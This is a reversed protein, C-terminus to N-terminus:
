FGTSFGPGFFDQSLIDKEDDTLPFRQLDPDYQTPGFPIECYDAREPSEGLFNLSQDINQFLLSETVYTFAAEEPAAAGIDSRLSPWIHATSSAPHPFMPHQSSVDDSTNLYSSPTSPLFPAASEYSPCFSTSTSTKHAKKSSKAKVRGAGKRFVVDVDQLTLDTSDFGEHQVQFANEFRKPYPNWRSNPKSRRNLHASSPKPSPPTLDPGFSSSSMAHSELAEPTLWESLVSDGAGSHVPAAVSSPPPVSYVANDAVNSVCLNNSSEDVPSTPPFPSYATSSPSDSFDSPVYSTSSSPTTPASSVPTLHRSDATPSHSPSYSFDSGLSLTSSSPTTPADSIPSIHRSDAAPSSSSSLTYVTTSPSLSSSSSAYNATSYTSTSPGYTPDPGQQYLNQSSSLGPLAYFPTPSPFFSSTFSTSSGAGESPYQANWGYSYTPNPSSTATYDDSVASRKTTRAGGSRSRERQNKNGDEGREVGRISVTKKPKPKPVTIDQRRTGVQGKVNTRRPKYKYEPYLLKHRQVALKAIQKWYQKEEDKYEEWQRHAAKSLLAQDIGIAQNLALRLEDYLRHLCARFCFFCNPPRGIDGSKSPKLLLPFVISLHQERTYVFLDLGDDESPQM